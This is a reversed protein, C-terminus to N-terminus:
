NKLRRWITNTLSETGHFAIIQNPSGTPIAAPKLAPGPHVQEQRLARSQSLFSFSPLCQKALNKVM